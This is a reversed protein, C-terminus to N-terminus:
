SFLRAITHSYDATTHAYYTFICLIASYFILCFFFCLTSWGVFNRHLDLYYLLLSTYYLVVKYSAFTTYLYSIDITCTYLIICDARSTKTEIYMYAHHTQAAIYIVM